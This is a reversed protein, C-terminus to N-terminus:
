IQEYSPQVGSCSGLLIFQHVSALSSSALDLTDLREQDSDTETFVGFAVPKPLLFDM